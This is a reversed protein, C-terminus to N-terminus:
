LHFSIGIGFGARKFEKKFRLAKLVVISRTNGIFHAQYVKGGGFNLFKETCLASSM